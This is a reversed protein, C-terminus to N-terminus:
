LSQPLELPNSADRMKRMAVREIIKKSQVEDDLEETLMRFSVSFM